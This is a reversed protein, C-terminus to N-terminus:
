RRVRLQVLPRARAIAGTNELGAFKGTAEDVKITTIDPLLPKAETIQWRGDVVDWVKEFPQHGLWVAKTMDRKLRFRIREHGSSSRSGIM